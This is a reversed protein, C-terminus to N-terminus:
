LGGAPMLAPSMQCPTPRHDGPAPRREARTAAINKQCSDITSHAIVLDSIRFDWDVKAGKNRRIYLFYIRRRLLNIKMQHIFLYIKGLSTAGHYRVLSANPLDRTRIGTGILRVSTKEHNEEIM